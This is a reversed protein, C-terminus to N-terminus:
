FKTVKLESTRDMLWADMMLFKGRVGEGSVFLSHSFKCKELDPCTHMHQVPWIRSSSFQSVPKVIKNEM